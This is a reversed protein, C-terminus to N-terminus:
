RKLLYDYKGSDGSQEEKGKNPKSQYPSARNKNIRKMNLRDYYKRLSDVSLINESWFLDAQSFLIVERVEEPNRKDLRILREMSVSWKQLDPIKCRPLHEKIKLFLLQSLQFPMSDSSFIISNKDTKLGTKLCPKFVPETPSQDQNVTTGDSLGGTTMEYLQSGDHDSLAESNVTIGDSLAGPAFLAEESLLQRAPLGTDSLTKWGGAADGSLGLEEREVATLDRENAPACKYVARGQNAILEAIDICRPDWEAPNTVFAYVSTMGIQHALRRIINKHVLDTIQRSIYSRSTGCAAAFDSLSIADYSHNWGYTRRLIFHCIAYQTRNLRVLALAELIINSIRTFNDQHKMEISLDDIDAM